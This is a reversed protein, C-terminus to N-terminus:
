ASPKSLLRIISKEGETSATWLV